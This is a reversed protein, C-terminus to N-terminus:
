SLESSINDWIIDAYELIPRIFSFYIKELSKRDLLYSIKRLMNLRVSAKSLVSNVHHSWSGNQSFTVGLHKHCDVNKIICDNFFLDPHVAPIRKNSIILSETKSPNFDVLWQKSWLHIKQLDNNLTDSATLPNDVVIYLTTDDAFLRINCKIDLVIDNIFILFLLPGLVSCQPVGANIKVWTSSKSNIVVRQSRNSLYDQLWSLLKGSFGSQYLKFILGRHWVRDFAKSIDCFVARVEKGQDIAKGIDNSIELLQNITSDGQIFGSQNKCLIQNENIYSIMHNHVCKEMVKGIISILSIPRYNTIENKCNKKHIPIVNAKKEM